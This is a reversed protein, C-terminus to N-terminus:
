RVRVLLLDFGAPGYMLRKILKLRHVHGEVQGQSWPLTLAAEVANRGRRLLRPAVNKGSLGQLTGLISNKFRSSCNLYDVFNLSPAGQVDQLIVARGYVDSVDVLTASAGYNGSASATGSISASQGAIPLKVM